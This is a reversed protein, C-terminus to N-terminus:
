PASGLALAFKTGLAAFFVSGFNSRDPIIRDSAVSAANAGEFAFDEDFVMQGFVTNPMETRLAVGMCCAPTLIRKVCENIKHGESSDNRFYGAPLAKGVVAGEEEAYNEKQLPEHGDRMFKAM